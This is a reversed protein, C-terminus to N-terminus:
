LAHPRFLLDFWPTWTTGGDISIVATERVGGDVAKWTGRVRREKNDHARDAGSLVMAGAEIGGEITLLAGRDTVWTQHWVRRSADYITFGQGAHGDAAQYDELLVCGGLIPTVRARAVPKEPNAVDFADWDGAWFDFLRYVPQSCAAPKASVASALPQTLVGMVAALIISASSNGFNSKRTAAGM